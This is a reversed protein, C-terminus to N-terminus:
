KTRVDDNNNNARNKPQLFGTSSNLSKRSPLSPNSVLQTAGFDTNQALMNKERRMARSCCMEGTVIEHERQRTLGPM